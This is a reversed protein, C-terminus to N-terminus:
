PSYKAILDKMRHLREALVSMYFERNAIFPASAPPQAAYSTLHRPPGLVGIDHIDNHPLGRERVTAILEGKWEGELSLWDAMQRETAWTANPGNQFEAVGRGHFHVLTNVMRRRGEPSTLLLREAESRYFVLFQSVFLMAIGLLLWLGTPLVLVNGQGLTWLGIITTVAGVVGLGTKIVREM